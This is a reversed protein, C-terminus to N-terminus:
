GKEKGAAPPMQLAFSLRHVALPHRSQDCRDRLVFVVPVVGVEEVGAITRGVPDVESTM